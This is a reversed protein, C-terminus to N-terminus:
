LWSERMILEAKSKDLLFIKILAELVESESKGEAKNQVIFHTLADNLIKEAKDARAKEEEARAKEEEARAREMAARERERDAILRAQNTEEKIKKMEERTAQVDIGKLNEFLIGMNEGKKVDTLMDSAEDQPVNMKMLLGWLVRIILDQIVPSTKKYISDMYDKATERFEKFDEPGQIKNIMMFLSMENNNLRLEDNEYDQLYVVHYTLDPIYDMALEAHAIRDSLHTGATWKRSGEYYVVPIILPYRFQKSKSIKNNKENEKDAYDKWILSMYMLLQMAVDYDVLSKHEVLAIVYVDQNLYPLRLHVKKITDGEVEIGLMARFKETQDELDEPKLDSFLTIGSYDKLFQSALLNNSFIERSNVDRIHMVKGVIDNSNSERNLYHRNDSM